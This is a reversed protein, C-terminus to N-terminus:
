VILQLWPCGNISTEMFAHTVVQVPLYGDMGAFALLGQGLKGDLVDLLDDTISQSSESSKGCYRSRLLM